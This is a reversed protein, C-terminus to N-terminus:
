TDSFNALIEEVIEQITKNEVDILIVNDSTKILENYAEEHLNHIANIYDIDLTMENERGRTKIRDLCKEPSSRLYIYYNSKWIIDTKQYLENIVTYEDKNINNNIYDNKNFTNRIFYPSREMFIISNNEKEQIWARDLWVKIQFNFYGTKSLYINDLFPKWKTVPELDIQINKYKHLYNLITTKGSGINGDITYIVM